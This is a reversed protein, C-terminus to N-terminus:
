RVQVPNTSMERSGNGLQGSENRGWCWLQNRQTLACFHGSGASLYKLPASLPRLVWPDTQYLEDNREVLDSFYSQWPMDMTRGWCSISPSDLKGTCLTFMSAAAVDTVTDYTEPQSYPPADQTYVPYWCVVRRVSSKVGCIQWFRGPRAAVVMPQSVGESSEVRNAEAREAATGSFSKGGARAGWCVISDEAACAINPGNHFGSVPGRRVLVPLPSSASAAAGYATDQEGALKVGLEGYYNSGWCWLAKVHDTACSVLRGATVDTMAGPLGKVKVPEGSSEYSGDGLQGSSNQGWCWPQGSSDLACSHTLGTAVATYSNGADSVRVPSLEDTFTGNGLQGYIGEGWCWTSGDVKVACTHRDGGSVAIWEGQQAPVCSTLIVAALGGGLARLMIRSNV